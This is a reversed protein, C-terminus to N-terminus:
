VLAWHVGIDGEGVGDGAGVQGCGAAFPAIDNAANSKHYNKGGHKQGLDGGGFDAAAGQLHIQFAFVAAADPDAVDLGAPEACGGDVAERQHVGFAAGDLEGAEIGLEGEAFKEEAMVREFIGRDFVEGNFVCNVVSVPRIGEVPNLRPPHGILNRRSRRGAFRPHRHLQRIERAVDVEDVGRQRQGAPLNEVLAEAGDEARGPKVVDVALELDIGKVLGPADIQGAIDAAFFGAAIEGCFALDVQALVAQQIDGLRRGVHRDREFVDGVGGRGSRSREAPDQERQNRRLVIRQHETRRDLRGIQVEGDGIALQAEILEAHNALRNVLLLGGQGPM